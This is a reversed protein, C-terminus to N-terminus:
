VQGTMTRRDLWDKDMGGGAMDEDQVPQPWDTWMWAEAGESRGYWPVRVGVVHM